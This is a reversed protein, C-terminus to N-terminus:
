KKYDLLNRVSGREVLRPHMQMNLPVASSNGNQLRDILMMASIRGTEYAPCHITTLPPVFFEAFAIDDFGMVSIDDPVSLGRSDLGHIMGFAVMDNVCLVATAGCGSEALRAALAAGALVEQNEMKGLKETENIFVLSEDLEIEAKKLQEVYGKYIEKRTWRTLPTSAFAIRKHGNEILHRVAMHAGQRSDYSISFGADDDFRQDLQVFSMGREIYRTLPKPNESISSLIVGAIRRNYLDQLYYAERAPDQRSNCLLLQYGNEYCVASIGQITQMYFPNSINPIILALENGESRKSQRPAMTYAFSLDRAAQEVRARLEASVPYDANSLVRSVTAVSVEAAAAVDKITARKERM